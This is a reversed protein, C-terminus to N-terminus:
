VQKLFWPRLIEFDKPDVEVMQIKQSSPHFEFKYVKKADNCTVNKTICSLFDHLFNFCVAGSWQGGATAPLEKVIFEQIKEVFGGDDRFGCVIRNIGILFSQLWWKLLKFRKFNVNQRDTEIRRSTKLEVYQGTTVDLCDVEGGFVLRHDGLKTRVVSCFQDNFNVTAPVSLSDEAPIPKAIFREFSHGWYTMLKDRHTM